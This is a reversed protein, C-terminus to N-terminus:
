QIEGPNYGLEKAVDIDSEGTDEDSDLTEVEKPEETEPAAEGKKTLIGFAVLDDLIAKEQKGAPVDPLQKTQSDERYNQLSRVIDNLSEAGPIEDPLYKAFSRYFKQLGVPIKAFNINLNKEFDSVSLKKSIYAEFILKSDKNM